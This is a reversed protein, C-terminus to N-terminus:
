NVQESMRLMGSSRYYHQIGPTHLIELMHSAPIHLGAAAVETETEAVAIALHIAM